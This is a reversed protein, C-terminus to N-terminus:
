KSNGGKARGPIPISVTLRGPNGPITSSSLPPYFEEILVSQIEAILRYSSDKEDMTSQRKMEETNDGGISSHPLNQGTIITLIAESPRIRGDRVLERVQTLPLIMILM